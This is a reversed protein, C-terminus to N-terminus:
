GGVEVEIFFFFILMLVGEDVWFFFYWGDCFGDGDSFFHCFEFYLSFDDDFWFRVKM